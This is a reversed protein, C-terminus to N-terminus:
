QCITDEVLEIMGIHENMLFAVNPHGPIAPAPKPPQLLIYGGFNVMSEIERQLCDTVYCLQNTPNVNAETM